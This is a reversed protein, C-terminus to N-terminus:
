LKRLIWLYHRILCGLCLSNLQPYIFTLSWYVLCTSWKLFWLTWPLPFSEGVEIKVVGGAEFNMFFYPCSLSRKCFLFHNLIVCLNWPWFSGWHCLDLTKSKVLLFTGLFFCPAEYLNCNHWPVGAMVTIILNYCM